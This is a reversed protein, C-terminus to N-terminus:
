CSTSSTGILKQVEEISLPKKRSHIILHCNPCVPRLDLMPDVEYENQIKSLPVLHHVHIKNKGLSGYFEEFDFGCVVCRSGYHAICESRAHRNREYRNVFVKVVAGEPLSTIEEVALEGSDVLEIESRGFVDEYALVLEPRMIWPFKGAQGYGLFPVHWWQPIGDKDVPPQAGTKDIVRKGFLGIQQNLPAHHSANLRSAIGSASMEHNESEYLLKLIRLVSDTTVKKDALIKKWEDVSIDVPDNYFM